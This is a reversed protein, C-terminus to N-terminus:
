ILSCQTTIKVLQTGTLRMNELPFMVWFFHSSSLSLSFSGLRCTTPITSGQILVNWEGLYRLVTGLERVDITRNGSHDFIDFADAIAPAACACSASSSFAASQSSGAANPQSPAVASTARPALTATTATTTDSTVTTTTVTTTTTSVSTPDAPAADRASTASVTTAATDEGTGTASMDALRSGAFRRWIWTDVSGGGPVISWVRRTTLPTRHTCVVIYFVFFYFFRITKLVCVMRNHFINM